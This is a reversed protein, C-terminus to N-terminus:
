NTKPLKKQIFPRAKISMMISDINLVARNLDELTGNLNDYLAKDHLLLGLTGQSQLADNLINLSNDVKGITTKLDAAKVDSLIDNIGDITQNANKVVSPLQNHTLNRIDQSSIALENTIQEVNQLTSRM